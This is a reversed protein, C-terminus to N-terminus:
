VDFLLEQKQPLKLSKATRPSIWISEEAFRGSDKRSRKTAKTWGQGMERYLDCDYGSIVVFGELQRAVQWLRRHDSEDMEFRYDDGNDSRTDKPYPPDIYHLALPDDYKQLLEFACRQEIIVGALRDSISRFQEVLSSWNHASIGGAPRWDARFGTSKHNIANSGFGMASRVLVRRADEIANPSQEFSLVFEVRSFLTNACLEALRESDDRMVRFLNVMRGDLDNYVEAYSREKRLLVSAGGGFLETYLRHPPFHSSIWEALKWKGGHYRVIPREVKM